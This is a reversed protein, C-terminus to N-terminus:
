ASSNTERTGLLHFRYVKLVIANLVFVKKVPKKPKSGDRPVFRKREYKDRIWQELHMDSSHETPRPYDSPVAAEFYAKARANGWSAM